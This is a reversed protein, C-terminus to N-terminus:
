GNGGAGAAFPRDGALEALVNATVRAVPNGEDTELCGTWAISGVSFEVGGGPDHRLVMDARARPEGGTDLPHDVDEVTDDPWVAYAPGLAAASALRVTDRPSGLRPEFSDVEYGAAGGLV